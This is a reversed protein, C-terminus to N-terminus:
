WVFPIVKYKVKQKYSAYGALGAELVKEENKIRKGIIPIYCLLVAFSLPSGLVIGMSLFLLLTAAYMPHRVVGYLGTDIVRQNEQVEVTRSLYENERLVEGYMAYAALFVAAGAWATWAPMPLWQFRYNLGALVFAALFMVGSLAIVQKQEGEQEKANLRKKLLEPNKRLMALGVCFMPIFLIGLLLWANWYRLSGAPLFLLASLLLVGAFFKALAQSLLSKKM